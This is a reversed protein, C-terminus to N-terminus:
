ISLQRSDLDGGIILQAGLKIRDIKIAAQFTIQGICRRNTDTTATPAGPVLGALLCTRAVNFSAGRGADGRDRRGGRGGESDGRGNSGSLWHQRVIWAHSSGWAKVVDAGTAEERTEASAAEELAEIDAASCTAPLIVGGGRKGCILDRHRELRITRRNPSPLPRLTSPFLM